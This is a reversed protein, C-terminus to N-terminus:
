EKWKFEKTWFDEWTTIKLKDWWLKEYLNKFFEKNTNYNEKIYSDITHETWDQKKRESLKIWPYQKKIFESTSAKRLFTEFSTNIWDMNSLSNKMKKQSDQKYFEKIPNYHKFFQDFDWELFYNQKGIKSTYEKLPQLLSYDIKQPLWFLENIKNDIANDQKYNNTKWLWNIRKEIHKWVSWISTTWFWPLPVPIMSLAKSWLDVTDKIFTWWIGEKLFSSLAQVIGYLIFLTFIILLINSFTNKVINWDDKWLIDWAMTTEFIWNVWISAAKIEGKAWKTTMIVDDVKIDGTTQLFWQMVVIVILSISMLWVAIVPAFIAKIINQISFKTLLDTQYIKEKDTFQLLILLPAFAVFFWVAIIRFINIIVLVVLAIVFLIVIAIRTGIVFLTYMVDDKPINSTNLYDQVKIVGIWLYMLPGSISNETPLIMDLIEKESRENSNGPNKDEMKITPLGDCQKANFDVTQKSQLRANKISLIMTEKSTNNQAIYTSPLSWITTTVITSIDVTAWILFWSLNALFIWWLMKIIYKMMKSKDIGGSGFQKILEGILLIIVLFNAFTRSINRLFYLIKDLNFFEGYLFGNNMLKWAFIAIPIRLWSLMALFWTLLDALQQSMEKSNCDAAFAISFNFSLLVIGIIIFYKHLSYKKKM